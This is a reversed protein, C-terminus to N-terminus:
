NPAACHTSLFNSVDYKVESAAAFSGDWGSTGPNSVVSGYYSTISGLFGLSTTQKMTVIDYNYGATVSKVTGFGSSSTLSTLENPGVVFCNMYQVNNYTHIYSSYNNKLISKAGEIKGEAMTGLDDLKVYAYQEFTGSITLNFNKASTELYIGAGVKDTIYEQQILSSNNANLTSGDCNKAYVNGVIGGRLTSNNLTVTTKGGITIPSRFGSIYSNNITANGSADVYIGHVYTSNSNKWLDFTSYKPGVLILDNITGGAIDFFCNDTNTSTIKFTDAIVIQHLNGYVTASGLIKSYYDKGTKYTSNTNLKSSDTDNYTITKIDNLLVINTNNSVNKWSTIDYANVADVVKVKVQAYNSDSMNETSIRITITEGANIQSLDLTDSLKTVLISKGSIYSNAKNLIDVYFTKGGDFTDANKDGKVDFLYNLPIGNKKGVKYVLYEKTQTAPDVVGYSTATTVLSDVAFASNTNNVLRITYEITKEGCYEMMFTGEFNNTPLKKLKFSNSENDYTLYEACDGSITVTVDKASFLSKLPKTPDDEIEKKTAYGPLFYWTTDESEYPLTLIMEASTADTATGDKNGLMIGITPYSTPNAYDVFVRELHVVEITYSQTKGLLQVTIDFPATNDAFGAGISVDISNTTNKETPCTVGKGTTTAIAGTAYMPKDEDDLLNTLSLTLTGTYNEPLYIKDGVRYNKGSAQYSLKFSKLTQSASLEGLDTLTIIDGNALQIKSNTSSAFFYEKVNEHTLGTVIIAETSLTNLAFSGVKVNAPLEVTTVDALDVTSKPTGNLMTAGASVHLYSPKETESWIGADNIIAISSLREAIKAALVTEDETNLLTAKAAGLDDAVNEVAKLNTILDSGKQDLLFYNKEGIMLSRPNAPSFTPAPSVARSPNVLEDYTSLVVQKDTANYWYHYGYKGSKPALTDYNVEDNTEFIKTIADRLDSESTITREENVEWLALQVNLNAAFQQDNSITASKIVGSITPILVAALIAIVAIVIVMEVITFAKRQRLTNM